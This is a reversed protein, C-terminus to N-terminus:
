NMAKIKIKTDGILELEEDHFVMKTYITAYTAYLGMLRCGERTLGIDEWSIDIQLHNTDHAIATDISEVELLKVDKKDYVEIHSKFNSSGVFEKFENLANQSNSQQVIISRKGM